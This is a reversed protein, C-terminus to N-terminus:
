DELGLARKIGALEERVVTRLEAPPRGVQGKPAGGRIWARITSQNVCLAAEIEAWKKGDARMQLAEERLKEKEEHTLTM